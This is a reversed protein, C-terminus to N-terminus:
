SDIQTIRRLEESNIKEVIEFTIYEEIEEIRELDLKGVDTSFALDMLEYILDSDKLYMAAGFLLICRKRLEAM